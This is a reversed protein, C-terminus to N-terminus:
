EPAQRPAPKQGNGKIECRPFCAVVTSMNDRSGKELCTDILAECCDSLQMGKWGQQFQSHMFGGVEDNSMVDWIGDCCLLLFQDNEASREHIEIDPEASVQQEEAKLDTRQKYSYDGLARSVALDGNVRRMSVCGGAHEIRSQEIDNCPKHDYSMPITTNNSFMIGRSDGSNACIIHTETILAIISTCGSQDEGSMIAPLQRMDEDLQLVVERMAGGLAQANTPDSQVHTKFTESNELLGVIRLAAEKAILDGGHGDFVAVVSMNDGGQCKLGAQVVHSDEMTVRWGQMACSAFRLNNGEHNESEKEVIPKDLFSGM